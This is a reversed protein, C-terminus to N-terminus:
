KCLFYRNTKLFGPVAQGESKGINPAPSWKLLGHEDTQPDPTGHSPVTVELSAM